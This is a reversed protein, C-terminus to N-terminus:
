EAVAPRSLCRIHGDRMGNYVPTLLKRAAAVKGLNGAAPGRRQEIRERIAHMPTGAPANQSAEIAAWRM